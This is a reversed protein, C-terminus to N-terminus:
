EEDEKKARKKRVFQNFTSYILYVFVGIIIFWFAYIIINYYTGFASEIGSFYVYEDLALSILHLSTLLTLFGMTIFISKFIAGILNEDFRGMLSFLALSIISLVVIAIIIFLTRSMNDSDGSPTIEFTYAWPSYITGAVCYGTVAYTGSTRTYKGLLTANFLTIDKTMGVNNLITSGDPYRMSTINCTDCPSTLNSCTQILNVDEGAKFTGYSDALATPLPIDLNSVALVMPMIVIATFFVILFLLMRILVKKISRETEERQQSNM